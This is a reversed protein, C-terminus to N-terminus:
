LLEKPEEVYTIWGFSDEHTGRQIGKLIGSLMKVVPGPEDNGDHYVFKDQNSRMTISKIPVLTAATGAATVETFSSLEKYPIPRREIRAGFSAAIDCVSASTVSELVSKSNPVVVTFTEGDDALKIGLFASTSFEDIETQTKSDLHLTIGFGQLKADASFRFVPAYNGGIKVAGTGNPAARDFDELILADLPRVGHYTGTPSVYVCFLYEEPPTLTLQANVGIILPRIYLAAGSEHPGVFAANAGVALYVCKLFHELPLIPMGLCTASRILREANMIPRFIAIKNSPTRYAKMGEFAQLGYNLAPSMGHVRLYPDKILKPPSWLGTKVFYSSEIHGHVTSSSTPAVNM